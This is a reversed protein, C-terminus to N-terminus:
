GRHHLISKRRPPPNREPLTRAPMKWWLYLLGASTIIFAFAGVILLFQNAETLMRDVAFKLYGSELALRSTLGYAQLVIAPVMILSAALWLSTLTYILWRQWHHWHLAILLLLATSLSVLAWNASAQIEYLWRIVQTFIPQGTVLSLDVLNAHQQVILASDAAVQPLLALQEPSVTTGQRAAYQGIFTQLAPMFAEAPYTTPEYAAQGTLFAQVRDLHQNIMLYIRADDLGAYLVTEPIHTFSSQALMDTEIAKRVLPLYEAAATAQVYFSKSFLTERLFIAGAFYLSSGLIILCLLFSLLGAFFQGIAQPITRGNKM